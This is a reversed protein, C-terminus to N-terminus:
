TVQQTGLLCISVPQGHASRLVCLSREWDRPKVTHMVSCGTWLPVIGALVVSWHLLLNVYGRIDPLPFDMKQSHGHGFTGPPIGSFKGLSLLDPQTGPCAAGLWSGDRSLVPAAPLAM